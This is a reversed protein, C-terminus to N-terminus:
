QPFYLGFNLMAELRHNTSKTDSYFIKQGSDATLNRGELRVYFNDTPKYEAGLTIGWLKIGSFENGENLFVGSLMGQPDHFVEGRGYIGFRNVAQYRLALLASAYSASKEANKLDGHQQVALDAGAVMRIKGKQFNLFVNNYFRTRSVTDDEAADNGLYNNYGISVADNVTYAAFLGISKKKNNDEYLNYGNLLYLNLLLKDTPTYNLRFGAEFYPEFFTAVAVSSTINEKPFLGETGIHTRFFGGDIWLNKYIRFGANAEQIFNFTSSWSSRPIDGYHLTVISRMRDASYKVTISAVNLGFQKSRPSISQFKQYNGTGVSDTYYALYADVMGSFTLTRNVSDSQALVSMQAFVFLLITLKKM